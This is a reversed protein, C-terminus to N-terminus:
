AYEYFLLVTNIRVTTHKKKIREAWLNELGVQALSNMEFKLPSAEVTINVYM